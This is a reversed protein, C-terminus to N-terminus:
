QNADTTNAIYIKANEVYGKSGDPKKWELSIKYYEMGKFNDMSSTMKFTSKLNPKLNQLHPYTFESGIVGKDKDYTTLRVVVSKATDNGKNQIQGELVRYGFSANNLKQRLLVIGAVTSKESSTSNSSFKPSNTVNSNTQLNEFFQGYAFDANQFVMGAILLIFTMIGALSIIILLVQKKEFFRTSRTSPNSEDVDRFSM